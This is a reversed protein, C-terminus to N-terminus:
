GLGSRDAVSEYAFDEVAIHCARKIDGALV